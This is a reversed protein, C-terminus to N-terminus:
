SVTPNEQKTNEVSQPIDLIELVELNELIELHTNKFFLGKGFSGKEWQHPKLPM